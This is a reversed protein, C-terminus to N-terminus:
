ARSTCAFVLRRSGLRSVPGVEMSSVIGLLAPLDRKKKLAETSREPELASDAGAAILM